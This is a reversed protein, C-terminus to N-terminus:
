AHSKSEQPHSPSATPGPLILGNLVFYATLASVAVPILNQATISTILATIAALALPVPILAAPVAAMVCGVALNVPIGPFVLAIIEGLTGGVFFLPFIPGGIFGAAIAGSTALLKTVVALLLFGIGFQAGSKTVEVLGETGLFLTLPMVKALLGLLLGALTCRVIPANHLPSLVRKLSRSTAVFVLAVAVGLLGLLVAMLIHWVQLQYTPLDLIRLVEAFRHGTATYFVAFGFLAAVAGIVLTGYYMVSQTHALELLMLIIGFPATFLGAYAGSVGGMLNIKQYSAPLQQRQTMWVALGGGLMGTPVEPGLSFGGILTVLSNIIAGPVVKLDMTGKPIAEFVNIEEAVRWRHLLGVIFGALTMIAVTRWSGSFLAVPHPGPWLAKMGVTMVTVYILAAIAGLLGSLSGWGFHLWFDKVSAFGHLKM